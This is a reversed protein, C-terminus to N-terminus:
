YDTQGAWLDCQCQSHPRRAQFQRSVLHKRLPRATRTIDRHGNRNSNRQLQKAQQKPRVTATPTATPISGSVLPWYTQPTMVASLAQSGTPSLLRQVGVLGAGGALTAMITLMKRRSMPRNM